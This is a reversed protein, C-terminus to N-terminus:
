KHNPKIGYTNAIENFLNCTYGQSQNRLEWAIDNFLNGRLETPTKRITTAIKIAEEKIKKATM